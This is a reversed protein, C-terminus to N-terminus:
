VGNNLVDTKMCIGHQLCTAVLSLSLISLHCHLVLLLTLIKTASPITVEQGLYHKYNDGDSVFSHPNALLSVLVGPFLPLISPSTGPFLISCTWPDFKLSQSPLCSPSSFDALQAGAGHPWQSDWTSIIELYQVHSDDLFSVSIIWSFPCIQTCQM